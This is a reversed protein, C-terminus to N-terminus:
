ILTKQRCSLCVKRIVTSTLKGCTSCSKLVDPHYVEQNVEDICGASDICEQCIARNTKNCVKIDDTPVSSDCVSCVQGVWLEIPNQPGAAQGNLMDGGYVTLCQMILSYATFYSKTSMAVEYPGKFGGLCLKDKVQYPHYMGNRNTNNLFQIMNVKDNMMQFKFVGFNFSVDRYVDKTIIEKNFVIMGGNYDDILFYDKITDNKIFNLDKIIDEDSISCYIPTFLNVNKAFATVYDGHNRMLDILGIIEEPTETYKKHKEFEFKSLLDSSEKIFKITRSTYDPIPKNKSSVYSVFNEISLTAM